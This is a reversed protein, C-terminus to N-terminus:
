DASALAAELESRTPMGERAGARTVALAAATVARQAAEEIPLGEALGAALAGNLTDGAGVTDVVAVKPSPISVTGDQGILRAGGAGLTLLVQGGGALAGLLDGGTREADGGPALQAAEGRNPTLVDTLALAEPTVGTAPAPNFITTAGSAKALRLAEIATATPIEHGVLVADGPGPGLREFAERVHTPELAANAGGAVAISNEGTADVLILAVGTVTDPLTRLESVDIGEAELAAQAETGFADSGVAGVFSTVAGLRAAAVAQNGGKGGHHQAFRGGTVTEGPAPLRDVTAVLDINVSGVVIVRSSM